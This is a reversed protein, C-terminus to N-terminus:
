SGLRYRRGTDHGSDASPKGSDSQRGSDPTTGAEQQGADDSPSAPSSGCGSATVLAESAVTRVLISTRM